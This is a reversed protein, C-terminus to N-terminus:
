IETQDPDALSVECDGDNDEVVAHNCSEQVSAEASTGTGTGKGTEDTRNRRTWFMLTIAIYIIAAILWFVYAAVGTRAMALSTDNYSMYSVVVNMLAGVAFLGDAFNLIRRVGHDYTLLLRSYILLVAQLLFLHTSLSHCVHFGMENSKTFAGAMIGTIGALTMVIHFGLQQHLADMIGVLVFCIAACIYLIKFTKGRKPTPYEGVINVNYGNNFASVSGGSDGDEGQVDGENNEDATEDNGDSGQDGTEGADGASEEGTEGGSETNDTDNNADGDSQEQAGDSPETDNGGDGQDDGVEDGPDEVPSEAPSPDDVPADTPSPTPAPTSELNTIFRDVYDNWTSEEYGFLM